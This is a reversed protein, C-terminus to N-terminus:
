FIRREYIFSGAVDVAAHEHINGTRQQIAACAKNGPWSIESPSAAPASLRRM